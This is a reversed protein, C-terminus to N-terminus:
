PATPGLPPAAPASAVLRELEAFAPLLAELFARVHELDADSPAVGRAQATARLERVSPTGTVIGGVPM